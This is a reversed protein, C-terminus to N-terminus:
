QLWLVLFCILVLSASASSGRAISAGGGVRAGVEAYAGLVYEALRTFNYQQIEPSRFTTANNRTINQPTFRVPVIASAIHSVMSTRRSVTSLFASITYYTM